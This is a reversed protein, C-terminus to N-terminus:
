FLLFNGNKISLLRVFNKKRPTLPKRSFQIKQNKKKSSFTSKKQNRYNKATKLTRYRAPIINKEFESQQLPNLPGKQGFVLFFLTLLGFISFTVAKQLHTQTFFHM